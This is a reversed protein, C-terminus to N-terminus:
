TARSSSTAAWRCGARDEVAHGAPRDLRDDRARLRDLLDGGERRVRARGRYHGLEHIFVLPGIVLLFAALSPSASGLRNASVRRVREMAARWAAAGRCRDAVVEDLSAPATPDYRSLTHRGRNRCYRPLRDARRSFGRGRGRQRRQPRCAAGRGGGAGRAGAGARPLAGSRAGRVDLTGIARSISRRVDADGDADPWALAHPSRCGCTRLTGLQALMSGDLYEVLSHMSRSASPRDRRHRELASRFCIIGGRDARPGQEDVDRQISRSRPAWRGTPISSVASSRRSARRMEDLRGTDRFPGGSATLIIRRVGQSSRAFHPFCQYVANHESFRGAAADRRDSERAAKIMVEGASSWRRRTPSRSRAGPPLRQSHDTRLGASASSRAGDDLRRRSAPRTSRDGAAGAATESAAAPSRM